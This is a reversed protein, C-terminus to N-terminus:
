QTVGCRAWDAVPNFGAVIYGESYQPFMYSDYLNMFCLPTDALLDMLSCGKGCKTDVVAEVAGLGAEIV